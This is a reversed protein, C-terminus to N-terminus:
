DAVITVDDFPNGLADIAVLYLEDNAFTMYVFHEVEASYATFDSEGVPRTGRGGGGTVVYTVGNIPETREYDHDHGCLVLEVGYDEFLPVFTSRVDKNSGHSGSSFPPRHLVVVTFPQENMALDDELWARQAEGVKETDLVIAHVPGWDFSYWRERGETGGNEFLAFAERFPQADDTGYDHNGSAPFFPVEGMMERYVSFVNRELDGRTGNDYAVDGTLLVFDSRVAALQALVALQDSSRKGLDGFAAFRVPETTDESPATSFAAAAWQKGDAGRLNWCYISAPALADIDATFQTGGSPKASTDRVGTVSAVSAGDPTTVDLVAANADAGVWVVTASHDTVKQLYPWRALLREGTPTTDSVGCAKQLHADHRTRPVAAIPHDAEASLHGLENGPTGCGVAVLISGLAVSGAFGNRVKTATTKTAM